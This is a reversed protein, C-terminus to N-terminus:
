WTLIKDTTSQFSKFINLEIVVHPIKKNIWKNLVLPAIVDLYLRHHAHFAIFTLNWEFICTQSFLFKQYYKMSFKTFFILQFNMGFLNDASFILFDWFYKQVFDM